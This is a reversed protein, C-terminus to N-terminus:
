WGSPGPAARRPRSNHPGLPAALQRASDVQAEQTSSTQQTPERVQKLQWFLLWGVLLRTRLAPKRLEVRLTSKVNVTRWMVSSM